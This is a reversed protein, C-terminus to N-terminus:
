SSCILSNKKWNTSKIEVYITNWIFKVDTIHENGVRKLQHFM